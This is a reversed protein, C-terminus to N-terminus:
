LKDSTVYELSKDYPNRHGGDIGGFRGLLSSAL